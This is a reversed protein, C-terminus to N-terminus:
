RLFFRRLTEEAQCIDVFLGMADLAFVSFKFDNEVRKLLRM